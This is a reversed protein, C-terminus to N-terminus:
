LSIVQGPFDALDRDSHTIILLASGAFARSIFSVANARTAPDLGKLPEDLIVLVPRVVSNAPHHQFFMAARALAVRQRMGGSLEAPFKALDEPSFGLSLLMSRACSGFTRVSGAGSAANALASKWPLLRPEQFMYVVNGRIGSVSGGFEPHLGSLVRALTTKGSGSPGTLCNSGALIDANLGSFVQKGDFGASLDRLEIRIAHDAEADAAEPLVGTVAEGGVCEAGEAAGENLVESAGESVAGAPKGRGPGRKVALKILAEMAVSFLVVAATWAFLDLTELQIKSDYLQRGISLRPLCLVEAAIGAKWSLGMATLLSSFYASKVSPIYILWATRLIGFRYVSAAELMDRDTSELATKLADWVIPTVMLASIFVPIKYSKLWVLTLIIFSAVPTAKIIRGIPSLLGSFFRSSASILALVTGSLVGLAFGKVIRLFSRATINWFASTGALDLLRRFVKFPSPLLLESGTKRALLYWLGIWLVAAALATLLSRLLANALPKKRSGSRQSAAKM